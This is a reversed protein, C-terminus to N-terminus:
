RARKYLGVLEAKELVHGQMAGELEKKSLGEKLGLAADLAYLKFFYRHTGSPPCPGGYNKRGFDNRGQKGPVSDQEIRGSLPMDYVLWHVWTGMPADPDDVVLALSKAAPPVAEIVLCPNVNEGDCTFRGPIMGNDKFDSSTIKM